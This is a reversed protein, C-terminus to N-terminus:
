RLYFSKQLIPIFRWFESYDYGLARLNKVKMNIKTSAVDFDDLIEKCRFLKKRKNDHTFTIAFFNFYLFGNNGEPTIAPSSRTKERM